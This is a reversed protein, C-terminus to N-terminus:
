GTFFVTMPLRKSRRANMDVASQVAYDLPSEFKYGRPFTKSNIPLRVLHVAVLKQSIFYTLCSCSSFFVNSLICCSIICIMIPQLILYASAM